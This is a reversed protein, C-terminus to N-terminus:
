RSCICGPGVVKCTKRFVSSSSICRQKVVAIARRLASVAGGDLEKVTFDDM